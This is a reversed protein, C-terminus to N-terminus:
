IRVFVSTEIQECAEIVGDKILEASHTDMISNIKSEFVDDLEVVQDFGALRALDLEPKIEAAPIQLDTQDFWSCFRTPTKRQIEKQIRASVKAVSARIAKDLQSVALSKMEEDPEEASGEVVVGSPLRYGDGGDRPPLGDEARVENPSKKGMDIEKQHTEARAKPNLALLSSTDHLFFRTEQEDETLMKFALESTIACLHPSLTMDLYNQNDETKENYSTAGPLGLRSPPMNYWRAVEFGQDDRLEHMQSKEADLATAEWKAGDRLIATKYQADPSDYKRKWGEELQDSATKTFHPPIIM